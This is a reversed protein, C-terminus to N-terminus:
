FRPIDSQYFKGSTSLEWFDTRFPIVPLGAASYLDTKGPNNEWNFRIAVPHNVLPNYVSVVNKGVIKAQAWYFKKDAGAIQFGRVFGNKDKTVLSDMVHKFYIKVENENYEAEEFIPSQPISSKNYAIRLSGMGLRTGVEKKNDPHINGAEGVDIATAMATNKLALAQSQAERLEAWDSPEINEKEEGYNALQVFLFPFDGQGWANRWDTIMAPFLAKYEVARDANAEGQYWIVGKIGIQTLPAINANYLVAPSSFPSINPLLPANIDKPDIQLGKKFKWEGWLIPNGWFSNTTFGGIGGTDFVRVVLVNNQAQLFKIPIKYSRHNRNGFTEGIFHGNVWTRDYDDIQLLNIQLSDGEFGAPLDFEKRFWVAGDFDKLNEDNEWTNGSAQITEWDSTDTNPKFWQEDIGIGLSYKKYWKANKNLNAKKLQETNKNEELIPKLEGKFQPFNMLAENSMWTEISTAGLNVSILGIPVETNEIVYKGFHYAVASFDALKEGQALTSWGATNIENSPLYDTKIDIRLLRLPAKNLFTSDVEKFSTERLAMQMNSQGGCIWVDGILIDQIYLTSSGKIKLTYPGGAAMAPLYVDWKGSNNLKINVQNNGLSVEINKENFASGWIHIEKDRQLVMGDSFYSSLKLEAKASLSLLLFVCIVIRNM